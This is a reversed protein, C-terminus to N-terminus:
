VRMTLQLISEYSYIEDCCNDKNKGLADLHQETYKVMEKNKMYIHLIQIFGFVTVVMSLMGGINSFAGWITVPTVTILEGQPGFMLM